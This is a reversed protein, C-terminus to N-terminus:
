LTSREGIPSGRSIRSFLEIKDDLEVCKECMARSALFQGGKGIVVQSHIPKTQPFRHGLAGRRQAPGSGIRWERSPSHSARKVKRASAIVVLRVPDM